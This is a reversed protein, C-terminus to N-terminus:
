LLLREIRVKENLEQKEKAIVELTQQMDFVSEDNLSEMQQIASLLIDEQEALAKLQKQISVVEANKDADKSAPKPAEKPKPVELPKEEVKQPVDYPLLGSEAQKLTM